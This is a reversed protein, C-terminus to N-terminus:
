NLESAVVKRFSPAPSPSQKQLISFPSKKQNVPHPASLGLIGYDLLMLEALASTQENKRVMTDEDYLIHQYCSPCKEECWAILIDHLDGTLAQKVLYNTCYTQSFLLQSPALLYYHFRDKILDFILRVPKNLSVNRLYFNSGFNQVFNEYSHYDNVDLLDEFITEEKLSKSYKYYYTKFAKERTNLVALIAKEKLTIEKDLDSCGYQIAIESFVDLYQRNCHSGSQLALTLLVQEKPPLTDQNTGSTQTTTNLWHLVFGAYHRLSTMQQHTLDRYSPNKLKDVMYGTERKLYAIRIDTDKTNDPLKLESCHMTLTKQAFTDDICLQASILDHM